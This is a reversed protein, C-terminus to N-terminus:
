LLASQSLLPLMDSDLRLIEFTSFRLLTGVWRYLVYSAIYKVTQFFGDPLARQVSSLSM